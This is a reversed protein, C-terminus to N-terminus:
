GVSDSLKPAKKGKSFRHKMEDFYTYVVPTVYLTVVQSFLLGGVVVIGLPRRSEAGAGAGLAIPLTGVLAAMTTMTIPRFRVLCAEVISDFPSKGTKEAETAFDVMMIANKKVLGVLMIIGVWAYVTLETKTIILALLAGFAAFPIGSLITLPHIFSEYLIGLVIYIVFIAIIFLTVLGKQTDQFVQAAGYFAGSVDQPLITRAAKEVADTAEGLSVGIKTNFAITVSPLQGTHNVLMPGLTPATKTVSSLPVLQGTKSRVYLMSLAGLDSQYEPLLELIVWYENQPTYITSVQRSGYANYLAQEIQEPTLQFRAAADRDLEISAQPNAIQLDTTVDVIAPIERMKSEMQQAAKYLTVLNGGVMTYQYQGKSARGGIQITPTNVVYSAIGPVARLASALVPVLEDASLKRDARPTLRFTIRGTNVTSSTGGYGSAVSYSEAAVNPNQAGIAAIQLMKDKMDDYGIGQIGETNARLIGQDESPFFGKKVVTFMWGAVILTVASFVMVLPRHKMALHLTNTYAKLVRQYLREFANFIFNNSGHLNGENLFHASLMPTLTLSVFGSVLIAVAITVAFERFLRGVIGGMFLLPIFVATLSATMSIITFGIEAAGDLAAQMPPKGMEMHRVINELMVIADDVVFGVALTLAMLSLNDLSYNLQYMVAFTGMLSMPLALSPITTASVNRLFLFIVAIVLVLTLGLTIKVDHVSDRIGQARDYFITADVSAPMQLKMIPLLAKIADAVEVTNTGPQKQIALSISREGNLWSATKNNQIDDLVQGLEKLRVPAGNRYTVVLDGFQAANNLQGNAQVTLAKSKGWLVGTPINVNAANIADAVEDIGIGRSALQRPDVQVRAAYKASGGVNVAAVGSVTSIRQAMVTEAYEDLQSLPMTASHLNIYLIPQDAPNTKLMSPPIMGQPLVGLTRAIATQVDQAGADINRDLTFQITISTSGLSSTSVMNDIGAITTFQKELPTAVASAMTEPSAGPLSANVTITPYDVSPLDSVSLKQYSLIGFGLIGVMVLTTMVPRKIFLATFNM